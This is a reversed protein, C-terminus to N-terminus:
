PAAFANRSPSAQRSRSCPMRPVLTLKPGQDAPIASASALCPQILASDPRQCRGIRQRTQGIDHRGGVRRTRRLSDHRADVPGTEQGQILLRAPPCEQRFELTFHGGGERGSRRRRCRGSLGLQHLSEGISRHLLALPQEGVVQAVRDGLHGADVRRLDPLIGPEEVEAHVRQHGDFQAAADFLSDAGLYRDRQHHVM